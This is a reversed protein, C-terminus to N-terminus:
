IKKKLDLGADDKSNKGTGSTKFFAVLFLLGIIFDIIGPSLMMMAIRQQKFLFLVAASYIIKEAAAFLMVWHYQVPKLAVLFFLFQWVLGVGIFGYYYEPHTIAPPFSLGMQGESFYLPTLVIVGYIGAITFVWRAFKM